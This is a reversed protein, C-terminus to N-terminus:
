VQRMRLIPLNRLEIGIKPPEESSGIAGPRRRPSEHVDDTITQARLPPMLLSSAMVGIVSFVRLLHAFRHSATKRGILCGAGTALGCFVSFSENRRPV